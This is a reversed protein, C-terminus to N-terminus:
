FFYDFRASIDWVYQTKKISDKLDMRDVGCFNIFRFNTNVCLAHVQQWPM